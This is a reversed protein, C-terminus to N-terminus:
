KIMVKVIKDDIKVIAINDKVSIDLATIGGNAITFGIQRGSTDFVSIKSGKPAGSINLTGGISQILVPTAEVETVKDEDEVIGKMDPIQDIWCLTATALESNDYGKKTAYVSISYTVDLQVENGSYSAIDTDTITSQCVAGETECTFILKGNAYSIIPKACQGHIPEEDEIAVIDSFGSSWNEDARYLDISSDPVHLTAPLPYNGVVYGDKDRAYCRFTKWGAVPVEKAYCYVDKLGTCDEFACGGIYTVSSPIKITTLSSCRIFANEKIGTVGDPINVTNNCGVLLTNTATEIIANCNERSDYVSNGSEVLISTLGKCMYFAGEGISTVSNPITLSKLDWNYAFAQEGITTVNKGIALSTLSSATLFNDDIINVNDGLILEKVNSSNFWPQVKSCNLSLSTIGNCNYFATSSINKMGSGIVVSTLSTCGEFAHNGIYVVSNPFTISTLGTCGEFGSDQITTVSNPITVSSLKTRGKFASNGISSVDEPIITKNCAILLTNTTTEIIANCNNRSDYEM